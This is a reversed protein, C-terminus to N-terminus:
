NTEKINAFEPKRRQAIAAIILSKIFDYVLSLGFGMFIQGITYQNNNGEKIKELSDDIKDDPLGLAEMSNRAREVMKVLVNQQLQPDIFKFLVLTTLAYFIEYIVYALFCFTLAEKFTMYGGLQKRRQFAGVLVFVIMIPLFAYWFLFNSFLGIGRWWFGFCLLSYLLGAILGYRIALSNNNTNM